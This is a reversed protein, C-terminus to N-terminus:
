GLVKSLDDQGPIDVTEEYLNIDLWVGYESNYVKGCFYREQAWTASSVLLLLMILVNGIIGKM